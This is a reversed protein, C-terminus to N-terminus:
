HISTFLYLLSTTVMVRKYFFKPTFQTQFQMVYKLFKPRKGYILYQTADVAKRGSEFCM